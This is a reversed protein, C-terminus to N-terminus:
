GYKTWRLHICTMNGSFQVLSSTVHGQVDLGSIHVDMFHTGMVSKRNVEVHILRFFWRTLTDFGHAM